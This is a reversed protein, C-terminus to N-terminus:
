SAHALRTRELLLEVYRRAATSPGDVNELWEYPASGNVLIAYAWKPERFYAVYVPYPQDHMYVNIRYLEVAFETATHSAAVEDAFAQSARALDDLTLKAAFGLINTNTTM